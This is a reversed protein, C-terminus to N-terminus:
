WALWQEALQLLDATDVRYDPKGNLAGAIDARSYVMGGTGNLWDYSLLVLDVNNVIGDAEGQPGNIDSLIPDSTYLSKGISLVFEELDRLEQETLDSTYGHMDTPNFTTMVQYITTAGGNQLYPSTRWAEALTPVDLPRTDGPRNTGVDYLAKAAPDSPDIYLDGQHCSGCNASGFFLQRGRLAAPSYSGNVLYPSPIPRESRLYANVAAERDAPVSMFQIFKFGATVAVEASARIGTIMAPATYHSLLMSKSNRPSGMGDNMLDWNLSDARGDPHCSACSLWKQYCMGADNFYEEGLREPSPTQQDGIV